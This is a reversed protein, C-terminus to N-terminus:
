EMGVSYIKKEPFSIASLTGMGSTDICVGHTNPLLQGNPSYIGGPNKSTHCLIGQELTEHGYVFFKGKPHTFKPRKRNWLCLNDLKYNHKDNKDIEFVDLQNWSRVPAHSVFLDETEFILPLNILYDIHDKPIQQILDLTKLVAPEKIFLSTLESNNYLEIIEKETFDPYRVKLGYSLLTKDGGNIYVWWAIHKLPAKCVGTMVLYAMAMAHEHNGKLHVFEPNAMIFEILQRSELLKDNVDGLFIKTKDEHGKILKQVAKKSGCPDAIILYNSM